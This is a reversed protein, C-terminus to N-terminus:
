EKFSGRVRNLVATCDQPPENGRWAVHHDPRVLVLDREWVARANEDDISVHALPVGLRAAEDVLPKGANSGSTDFLTLEPGLLDYVEEDQHVRISPVRSGPWTTPVIRAWDWAPEAGDEHCIVPSTTYRYGFHIGINNIQYREHELFGALQAKTAGEAALAPYRRWVELLNFCMERNFLAVPRREAEYSDLLAPGGWGNLVAALKWGLDFADGLGTNAGHGGTPFFQHAADGAVFVSGARYSDAVALRGTWHAVTLIEDVSFDLGLREQIVPIPDGDFPEDGPLPFTGTWTEFGDRAVLTLGRSAITLFFRGHQLLKPDRSRFYVDCHQAEPGFQGSTIGAQRVCQAAPATM